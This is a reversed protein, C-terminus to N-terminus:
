GLKARSGLLKDLNVYRLVVAILVLTIALLIVALASGLPWNQQFSFAHHIDDAFPVVTSGGLVQAEVM